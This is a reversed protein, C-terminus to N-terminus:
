IEVERTHKVHRRCIRSFSGPILLRKEPILRPIQFGALGLSRQELMYYSGLSSFGWM